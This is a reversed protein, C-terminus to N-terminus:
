KKGLKQKILEEEKRLQEKLKGYHEVLADVDAQESSKVGEHDLKYPNYKKLMMIDYPSRQMPGALCPSQAYYKCMDNAKAYCSRANVTNSRERNM